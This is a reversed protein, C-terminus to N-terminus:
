ETEQMRESFLTSPTAPAAKLWPRPTEDIAIRRSLQTLTTIDECTNITFIM